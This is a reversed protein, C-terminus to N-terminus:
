LSVDVVNRLECRSKLLALPNYDCSIAYRGAIFWDKFMLSHTQMIELVLWGTSIMNMLFRLLFHDLLDTLWFLM